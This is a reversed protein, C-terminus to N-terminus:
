ERSASFSKRYYSNETAAAELYPHLSTRYNRHIQQRRRNGHTGDHVKRMPLSYIRRGRCFCIGVWFAAILTVGGFSRSIGRSAHRVSEVSRVRPSCDVSRGSTSLEIM